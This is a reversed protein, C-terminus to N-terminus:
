KIDLFSKVIAIFEGYHELFAYHTGGKMVILAADNIEKEMVEGMWVPTATDLEGYILLTSAKIKPLYEALDQGIVQNFTARMRDTNLAKYDASGYKQRLVERMGEVKEEGLLGKTLANDACGRLFKYMRTKMSLKNNAKPKLGACGTLILKGVLEPRTASLVISVRGGHSHAIIDTGQIGLQEILEAVAQAFDPVGWPKPPESSKGHGPFDIAIVKRYPSLDRVIRQWITTDCGWGHLLLLPAGAGHQEYYVQAGNATITM